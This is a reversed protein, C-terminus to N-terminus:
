ATAPTFAGSIQFTASFNIKGNVEGTVQYATRIAAAASWYKKGSGDGEPYLKLAAPGTAAAMAVQGDADAPDYSGSLQVTRSTNGQIYTKDLSVAGNLMATDEIADTSDSYTWNGVEAVVGSTAYVIKGGRGSLGAM